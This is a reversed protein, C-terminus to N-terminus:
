RRRRALVALTAVALAALSGAGVDGFAASTCGCSPEPPPPPPPTTGADIGLTVKLQPWEAACKATETSAACELPGRIQTLKYVPAFTAGDNLSEGLVFGERPAADAPVFESSCAYLRDTTAALCKVIFPQLQVFAFSTTDAAYLGGFGSGIWVKKGDPSLAFGLPPGGRWREVFSKGGDDTVLLRGAAIQTGGDGTSITRVYVRNADNPDVAAIFAGREAPELPIPFSAFSGGGDTSALLFAEIKPDFRRGTVYIRQPDSRAFDITDVVLTPDLAAAAFTWTRASDNSLAVRSVYLPAGADDGKDFNNTVAIARKPAGPFTAVDVVFSTDIPAKRVWSCGANESVALGNFTGALLTRGDAIAVPPDFVGSYRIASECIWDWTKGRDRSVLVGFTMRLVLFDPDGDAVVLQNAEPIRGNANAQRADGLALLLAVFTLASTSRM